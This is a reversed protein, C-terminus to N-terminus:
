IFLYLFTLLNYSILEEWIKQAQKDDNINLCSFFTRKNMTILKDNKQSLLVFQLLTRLTEASLEKSYKTFIIEEFSIM